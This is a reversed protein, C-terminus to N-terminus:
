APRFLRFRETIAVVLLSMLGCILFGAALPATTGNFAQGIVVGVVAGVTISTFGQVSSATGAIGGMNEMAMSSFNSTALGFCGLTVAQLAAFTLLTEYGSAQFALHVLSAAIVLAIWRRGANLDLAIAHVLVAPRQEAGRDLGLEPQGRPVVAPHHVLGAAAAVNDVAFGQGLKQSLREAMHRVAVDSASGAQLPLVVTSPGSPYRQSWVHPSIGSLALASLWTRRHM